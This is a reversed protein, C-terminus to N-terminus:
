EVLLSVNKYANIIKEADIRAKEESVNYKECISSVVEEFTTETKLLETIFAGTQNLKIMGHFYESAEEAAVAVFEGEFESIIIESRLIM